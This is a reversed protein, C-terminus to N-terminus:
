ILPAVASAAMPKLYANGSVYERRFDLMGPRNSRTREFSRSSDFIRRHDSAELPQEVVLSRCVCHFGEDHAASESEQAGSIRAHQPPLVPMQRETASDNTRAVDVYLRTKFDGRFHPKFRNRRVSSNLEFGADPDASVEM